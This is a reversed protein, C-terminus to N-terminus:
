IRFPDVDALVGVPIQDIREQRFRRPVDFIFCVTVAGAHVFWLTHVSPIGRLKASGFCKYVAQFM